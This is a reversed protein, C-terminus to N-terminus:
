ISVMYFDALWLNGPLSGPLHSREQLGTWFRDGVKTLHERIQNRRTRGAFSDSVDDGLARKGGMNVGPLRPPHHIRDNALIPLPHLGSRLRVWGPRLAFVAGYHKLLM